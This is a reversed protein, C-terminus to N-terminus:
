NEQECGLTVPNNFMQVQSQIGHVGFSHEFDDPSLNHPKRHTQSLNKVFQLFPM